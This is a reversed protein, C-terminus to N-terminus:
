LGKRGHFHNLPKAGRGQVSDHIGSRCRGGVSGISSVFVGNVASVEHFAIVHYYNPLRYKPHYRLHMLHGNEIQVSCEQFHPYGAYCFAGLNHRVFIMLLQLIMQINM